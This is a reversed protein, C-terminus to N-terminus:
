APEGKGFGDPATEAASARLALTLGAHRNRWSPLPMPYNAAPYHKLSAAQEALSPERLDLMQGMKQVDEYPANVSELDARWDRWPYGGIASEYAKALEIGDENLLHTDPVSASDRVFAFGNFLGQKYKAPQLFHPGKGIEADPDRELALRDGNDLLSLVRLEVSVYRGYVWGNGAIPKV